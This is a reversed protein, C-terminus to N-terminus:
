LQVQEPIPPCTTTAGPTAACASLPAATVANGAADQIGPASVTASARCPHRRGGPVRILGCQCGAHRVHCGLHGNWDRVSRGFTSM